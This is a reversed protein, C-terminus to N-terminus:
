VSPLMGKRIAYKMLEGQNHLDLKDMIHARHTQVTTISIVLQDAIQRNTLGDAILRLVEAERTTLGDYAATTKNRLYDSVMSRTLAPDLYVGGSHVSKLAFLLENKDAGKVVYGSAGSSLARFFYEESEHMTLMVIKADEHKKRIEAAVEFGSMEPMSIDLLVIDPNLSEYLAVATKGDGSEGVVEFDPDQELLMGIGSRVLRHDDVILVKVLDISM